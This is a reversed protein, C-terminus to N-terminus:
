AQQHFSTSFPQLRSFCDCLMDAACGLRSFSGTSQVLGATDRPSRLQSSWRCCSVTSEKPHVAAHCCPRQPSSPVTAQRSSFSFLSVSSFCSLPSFTPLFVLCCCVLGCGFVVVVGGGVLFGFLGFVGFGSVVWVAAIACTCKIGKLRTAKGCPVM